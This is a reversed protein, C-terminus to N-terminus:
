QSPIPTIFETGSHFRFCYSNWGEWLLLLKTGSIYFKANSKILDDQKVALLFFMHNQVEKEGGDSVYLLETRNEPDWLILKSAAPRRWAKTSGQLSVPDFLGTHYLVWVAALSPGLSVAKIIDGLCQTLQLSKRRIDILSLCVFVPYIIWRFYENTPVKVSRNYLTDKFIKATNHLKTAIQTCLTSCNKKFRLCM